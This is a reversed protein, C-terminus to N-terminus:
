AHRMDYLQRLTCECATETYIAAGLRPLGMLAILLKSLIYAYM